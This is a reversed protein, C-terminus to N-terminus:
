YALSPSLVHRFRDLIARYEPEPLFRVIANGFDTSGVVMMEGSQRSQFLRTGLIHAVESLEPPIATWGWGDSTPTIRVTDYGPTFVGYTAALDTLKLWFGPWGTPRDWSAPRLVYESSSLTSFTGGTGSAVELTTIGNIGHRIWLTDQGNGDFTRIATGGSGVPGGIYSEIMTNVATARAELIADSNSDSIGMRAKLATGSTYALAM